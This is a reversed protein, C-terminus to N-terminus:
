NAVVSSLSNQSLAKVRNLIPLIIFIFLLLFVHSEFFVGLIKQTLFHFSILIVGWYFDERPKFLMFIVSLQSLIIFCWVFASFYYHNLLFNMFSLSGNLGECLTRAIQSPLITAASNLWEDPRLDFFSRLKWFGTNFYISFCFARIFSFHLTFQGKILPLCFLLHATLWGFLDHSVDGFSFLHSIFLLWELGSLARFFLYPLFFSLFVSLLTLYYTTSLPPLFHFHSFINAPFLVDNSLPLSTKMLVEEKKELLVLFSFLCFLRYPLYNSNRLNYCFLM